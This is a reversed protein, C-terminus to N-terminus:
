RYDPSPRRENPFARFLGHWGRGAEPLITWRLINRLPDVTRGEKGGLVDGGGSIMMDMRETAIYLM